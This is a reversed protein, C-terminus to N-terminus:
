DAVGHFARRGAPRGRQARLAAVRLAREGHGILARADRGFVELPDEVTVPLRATGGALTGTEAERDRLADDVRVAAADPGLAARGVACGEEEGQRDGGSRADCHAG